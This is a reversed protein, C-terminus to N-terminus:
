NQIKRMKNILNETEESQKKYYELMKETTQGAGKREQDLKEFFLDIETYYQSNVQCLRYQHQLSSIHTQYCNFSDNCAECYNKM